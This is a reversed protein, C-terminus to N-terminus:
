LPHMQMVQTRGMTHPEVFKLMRRFMPEAKQYQGLVKYATALAVVAHEQAATNASEDAVDLAKELHIIAEAKDGLRYWTTGMALMIPSM